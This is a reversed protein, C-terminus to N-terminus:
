SNARELTYVFPGNLGHRAYTVGKKLLRLMANEFGINHVLAHDSNRMVYLNSLSNDARNHNAHHTSEGSDLPRGLAEECLVVHEYRGRNPGSTIIVYGFKTVYTGTM